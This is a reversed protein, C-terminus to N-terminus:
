DETWNTAGQVRYEVKYDTANEVANWGVRASTSTVQDHTLGTPTTLKPLVTITAVSSYPSSDYGTGVAQIKINWEGYPSSTSIVRVNSTATVSSYTSDSAKKYQVNYKTANTVKSWAITFSSSSSDTCEIGSPTSLIGRTKIQKVTSWDSTTYNTGDGNAKVRYYRTVNRQVDWTISTGSLTTEWSSPWTSNNRSEGITYNKANAIATWSLTLRAYTTNTSAVETISLTPTALKTAM